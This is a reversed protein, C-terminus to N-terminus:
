YIYEYYVKYINIYGSFEISNCRFMASSAEDFQHNVVEEVIISPIDTRQAILKILWQKMTISQPKETLKLQM